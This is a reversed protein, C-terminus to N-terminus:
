YHKLEDIRDESFDLSNFDYFDYREALRQFDIAYIRWARRKEMFKDLNEGMIYVCLENLRHVTQIEIRLRTDMDHVHTYENLLKRYEGVLMYPFYNKTEESLQM